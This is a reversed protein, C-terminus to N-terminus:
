KDYVYKNVDYKNWRKFGDKGGIYIYAPVASTQPELHM